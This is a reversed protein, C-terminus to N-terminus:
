RRNNLRNAQSMAVRWAGDLKVYVTLWQFSVPRNAAPDKIPSVGTVIATVPGFAQVVMEQEPATEIVGEEGALLIAIREAKLDIRGTERVHSFDAAYLEDLTKRDKALVAARVKERVSLIEDTTAQDALAQAWAGAHALSATILALGFWVARALRAM